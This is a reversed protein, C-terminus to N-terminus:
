IVGFMPFWYQVDANSLYSHIYTSIEGTVKLRMEKLNARQHLNLM